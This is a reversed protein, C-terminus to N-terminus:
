RSENVVELRERWMEVPQPFLGGFYITATGRSHLATVVGLPILSGHVRVLDGVKM